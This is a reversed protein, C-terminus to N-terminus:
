RRAPPAADPSPPLHCPSWCWTPLRGVRHPSLSRPPRTSPRCCSSARHSRSTASRNASTGAGRGPGARTPTVVVWRRHDPGGIGSLRRLHGVRRRGAAGTHAVWRDGGAPGTDQQFASDSLPPSAGGIIVLLCRSEHRGCHNLHRTVAAPELTWLRDACAGGSPTATLLPTHVVDNGRGLLGRSAPGDGGAVRPTSVVLM